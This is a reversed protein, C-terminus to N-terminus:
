VSEDIPTFQATLEKQAAHHISHNAVCITVRYADKVSRILRLNRRNPPPNIPM